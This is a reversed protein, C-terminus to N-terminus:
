SQFTDRPVFALEGPELENRLVRARAAASSPSPSPARTASSPTRTTWSACARTKARSRVRRRARPTSRTEADQDDPPLPLRHPRRQPRRVGRVHQRRLAGAGHGPRLRARGALRVRRLLDTWFTAASVDPRWSSLRLDHHRGDGRPRLRPASPPPASTRRPPPPANPPARPRGPDPRPPALVSTPGAAAAEASRSRTWRARRRTRLIRHTTPRARARTRSRARPLRRRRARQSRRSRPTSTGPPSSSRPRPGDRPPVRPSGDGRRAGDRVFIRRATSSSSSRARVVGGVDGGGRRAGDVHNPLVGFRASAGLSSARANRGIGDRGRTVDGRGLSSTAM